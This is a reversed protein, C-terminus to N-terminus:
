PRGNIQHNNCMVQYSRFCNTLSLVVCAVCVFQYLFVVGEKDHIDHDMNIRSKLIRADRLLKAATEDKILPGFFDNFIAAALQCLAELVTTKDEESLTMERRLDYKFRLTKWKKLQENLCEVVWRIKTLFRTWNAEERTLQDRGNLMAPILLKFTKDIDNEDHINGDNIEKMLKFLESFPAQYAEDLTHFGRDAGIFHILPDIIDILDFKQNKLIYLFKRADSNYGDAAFLGYTDIFYGSITGTTMPMLCNIKKYGNRTIKQQHFNGSQQTKLYTGDMLLSPAISDFLVKVFELQEDSVRQGDWAGAGVYM